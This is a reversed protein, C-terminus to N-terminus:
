KQTVKQEIKNKDMGTDEQLHSMSKKKLSEYLVKEEANLQNNKSILDLISIASNNFEEQSIKKLKLQSQIYELNHRLYNTETSLYMGLVDKMKYNEVLIQNLMRQAKEVESMISLEGTKMKELRKTVENLQDLTEKKIQEAEEPEFDDKYTELDKLQNNLRNLEDMVNKLLKDDVNIM